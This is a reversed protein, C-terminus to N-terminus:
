SAGGGHCCSGSSKTCSKKKSKKGKKKKEKKDKDGNVIETPNDTTAAYATVGVTGVFAFFSLAFLIKKM